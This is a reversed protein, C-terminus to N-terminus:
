RYGKGEMVAHGEDATRRERRSAEIETNIEELTMEATADRRANEGIVVMACLAREAVYPQRPLDDQLSHRKGYRFAEPVIQRRLPDIGLAEFLADAEDRLPDEVM